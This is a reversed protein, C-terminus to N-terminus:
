GVALLHVPQHSLRDVQGEERGAQEHGEADEAELLRHGGQEGPGADDAQGEAEGELVDGGVEHRSDVKRDLVREADAMEDLRLIEEADDLPDVQAPRLDAARLPLDHQDGVLLHELVRDLVVAAGAVAPDVDPGPDGIAVVQLLDPPDRHPGQLLDRRALHVRLHFDEELFEPLARDIEHDAEPDIEGGVLGLVELGAAFRDLAQLASEVLVPDSQREGDAREVEAYAAALLEGLHQSLGADAAPTGPGASRPRGVLVLPAPLKRGGGAYLPVLLCAMFSVMSPTPFRYLPFKQPSLSKVSSSPAPTSPRSPGFPAPFDVRMRIRALFVRVVSPRASHFPVSM